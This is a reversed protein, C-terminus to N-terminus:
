SVINKDICLRKHMTIANCFDYRNQLKWKNKEQDKIAKTQKGEHQEM